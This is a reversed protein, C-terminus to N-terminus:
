SWQTTESIPMRYLPWHIKKIFSTMGPFRYKTRMSEITKDVGIHCQDDHFLKTLNLRAAAPVYYKFKRQQNEEFVRMLVNNQVTYEQLSDPNEQIKRKIEKVEKDQQQTAELWTIQDNVLVEEVEIRPPNRSLFDAHKINSGKPYEIKFNFDQIYSWWRAM